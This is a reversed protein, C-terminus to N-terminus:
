RLAAKLKKLIMAGIIGIVAGTLTGSIILFILYYFLLNTLIVMAVIIQGVNHALGGMISVGVMSFGKLKKMLVMVIFSLSAGAVSFWFMSMNGYTFSALLVRIISLVFAAKPGLLYLAVLIVINALGLKMGPIPIPIPIFTELYSFIFALSILMGYTAIKKTSSKQM